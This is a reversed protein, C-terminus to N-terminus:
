GSENRIPGMPTPTVADDRPLDRVEVGRVDLTVASTALGRTGTGPVPPQAWAIFVVQGRSEPRPSYHTSKSFVRSVISRSRVPVLVARYQM